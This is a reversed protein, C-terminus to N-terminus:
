RRGARLDDIQSKLVAIDKGMDIQRENTRNLRKEEDHISAANSAVARTLNMVNNQEVSIDTRLEGVQKSLEDQRTIIRDSQWSIIGIVLSIAGLMGARYIAIWTINSAVQWALTRGPGPAPKPKKKM